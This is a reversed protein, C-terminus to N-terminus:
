RQRWYVEEMFIPYCLREDGNTTAGMAPMVSVANRRSTLRWPPQPQDHGLHDTGFPQNAADIPRELVGLVGFFLPRDGNLDEAAIGLLHGVRRLNDLAHAGIDDVDVHATRHRFDRLVVGAAAQHALRRVRGAHDGRHRLSTLIGTVTFIRAPHFSSRDVRRIQRLHHFVGAGGGDGHMAPRCRLGVPCDSQDRMSRTASDTLMGTKPDPSQMSGSSMM